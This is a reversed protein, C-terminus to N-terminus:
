EEPAEEAAEPADEAKKKRTKKPKEAPEEAAEEPEDKPAPEFKTAIAAAAILDKAKSYLRDTRLDEIPLYQKVQEVEMKYSDAMSQYETELEEDTVELGEVEAVKELLLDSKVRSEAEPRLMRRFGAEDTGLMQLYDALKMGSMQLQSEYQKSLSDIMSDIMSEPIDATMNAAAANVCAEAFTRDVEAQRAETLNKRTGAKLEELTDFESVDKAFEDDKEPLITEKVEHVTCKFTAEKGALEEAGYDEPFTVVVDKSEGASLGILQDEFGPIFSGSGLKLDYNEGKGGDFAVGDVFGEFDLKVTDGDQAPREVNQVRANRQALRDIEAEVEEDLVEVELKSIELGKYQGLTVEPYVDTTVVLELDGSETFDMSEVSPYGVVKLATQQLADAYIEPFLENVADEYFVTPGYM